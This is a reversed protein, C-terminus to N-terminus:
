KRAPAAPEVFPRTSPTRLPERAWNCGPLTWRKTTYIRIDTAYIRSKARVAQSKNVVQSSQEPSDTAM